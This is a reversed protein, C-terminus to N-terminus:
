IILYDFLASFIKIILISNINIVDIMLHHCIIIGPINQYNSM